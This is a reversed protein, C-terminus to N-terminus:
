NLHKARHEIMEAAISIAIEEPTEASIQLGIPSHVRAIDADTYGQELLLERTKAVKHKSGICGIYTADSKLVQSLIEFDARHGPTMIVVYDNATLTVKDYIRGFDGFIVKSAAPYNEPVALEKRNDFLVVPFGIGALVPVLAKGVHGGGFLYVKGARCVPEAYTDNKWVARTTFYERREAPIEDATLVEFCRVREQTLELYLWVNENGDLLTQWRRLVATERTMEPSFVQSYVTVKGGCIMGISEVEDPRLDYSRLEPEHTRICELARQAALYEVAGGGITGLTHGDAFVAMKAGAGRPSSGSSAFISCLVVSEGRVLADLMATLITKMEEM